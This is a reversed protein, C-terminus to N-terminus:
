ATDGRQELAVQLAIAVEDESLENLHHLLDGSRRELPVIADVSRGAQGLARVIAALRAITPQEFVHRLPVDVDLRTRIRSVVQTALLSHGGLEFFSDYIGFGNRSLVQTWIDALVRELDDRPAVTDRVVDTAPDPLARRDLKGSTTLPLTGILVLGAPLFTEPLRSALAERIRRLTPTAGTEAVVYAVLGLGGTPDPRADVAAAAIEPLDSLAKEIEELEIRVGRIKVQADLRGLYQLVGDNTWRARDGTRYFLRSPDSPDSVFREATLEPRNVYGRALGVGALCLEGPVGIPLPRLRRDVVHCEINAIPRGIPVFPRTDTPDCQWATVDIAAETPGYLNHLEVHPLREFFTHQLDASLAEGSCIVRRLGTCRAVTPEALFMRLMSPVFHATTVGHREFLDVLYRPDGHGDPKAIVTAAGTIIPWLLEWVSVDFSIPTKLVVRDSSALRYRTQMWHLRNVIGKTTNMAGKPTGTSGSTFIVYALREPDSAPPGGPDSGQGTLPDDVWLVPADTGAVRAHLTRQCLIAAPRAEDMITSLRERPNSPDLPLYAGGAKLIALVGMVLAPSRDACMAVISEPGVGLTKLQVALQNSSADLERYSVCSGDDSILAPADPSQAAQAVFLEVVGGDPYQATTANWARIQAREDTGVIELDGLPQNPAETAAALLREHARLMRDITAEDYLDTNYELRVAVSGDADEWGSFVMDFIAAGREIMLMEPTGRLALKQRHGGFHQFAVQVLPNRSPDRPPALAEVLREFPVDQRTYADLAVERTRALAQCYTPDGRLDLRLVLTNVLFGILPELEPRNRGASFTALPFEEQGSYRALMAAFGTLLGMFLTAGHQGAFEHVRRVIEPPLRFPRVKGAFTQTMPRPRDTPLELTPLEALREILARLDAGLRDSALRERQWVAVDAIQVALAPLSVRRGRVAGEYLAGLEDLLVRLSWGDSVTHHITLAIVWRAQGVRITTARLLPGTTLDFPKRAEATALALAREDADVGLSRLDVVPVDLTLTPTVVQVPRGDVNLFTTRLSEHRRVVQNLARSLAAPNLAADIRFAHHITYSPSGPNLQELFWLREQGPSLPAPGDTARSSIPEDGPRTLGERDLLKRLLAQRRSKIPANM